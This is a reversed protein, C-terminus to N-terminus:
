LWELNLSKVTTTGLKITSYYSLLLRNQGGFRFYMFLFPHKSYPLKHKSITNYKPHQYIISLFNQFNRVYLKVGLNESFSNLIVIKDYYCINSSNCNMIFTDFLKILVFMKGNSLIFIEQTNRKIRFNKNLILKLKFHPYLQYHFNFSWVTLLNCLRWVESTSACYTLTYMAKYLFHLTCM